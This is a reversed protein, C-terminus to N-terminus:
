KGRLMYGPRPRAPWVVAGDCVCSLCALAARAYLRGHKRSVRRLPACGVDSKEVRAVLGPLYGRGKLLKANLHSLPLTTARLRRGECHGYIFFISSGWVLNGEKGRRESVSPLNM